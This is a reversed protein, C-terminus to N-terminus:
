SKKPACPKLMPLTFFKPMMNMNLLMLDLPHFFMFFMTPIVWKLINSQCFAHFSFVYCKSLFVRTFYLILFVSFIYSYRNLCVVHFFM